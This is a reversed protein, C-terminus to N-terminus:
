ADYVHLAVIALSAGVVAVGFALGSNALLNATDLGQAERIAYNYSNIGTLAAGGLAVVGFLLAMGVGMDTASDTAM